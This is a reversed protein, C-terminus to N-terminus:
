KNEHVYSHQYFVAEVTVNYKLGCDISLNLLTNAYAIDSANDPLVLLIKRHKIDKADIKVGEAEGGEFDKLKGCHSFLARRLNSENSYYPATVDISVFVTVTKSKSDYLDVVPFFEPLNSGFVEEIVKGRKLNSLEWVNIDAVTYRTTGGYLWGNGKVCCTTEIGKGRTFFMPLIYDAGCRVRLEFENGNEYFSSGALSVGRLEMKIGTMEIEKKIERELIPTLVASWAASELKGFAVDGLSQSIAGSVGDDPLLSLAAKKVGDKLNNFGSKYFIVSDAAIKESVTLSANSVAAHLCLSQIVCIFLFFTGAVLPLTLAAEISISGRKNRIGDIIGM